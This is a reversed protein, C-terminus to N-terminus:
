LNWLSDDLIEWLKLVADHLSKNVQGVAVPDVKLTDDGLNEFRSLLSTISHITNAEGDLRARMDVYRQLWQPSLERVKSLEISV